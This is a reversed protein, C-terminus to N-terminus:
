KITCVVDRDALNEVNGLTRKLMTGDNTAFADRITESQTLLYENLPARHPVQKALNELVSIIHM